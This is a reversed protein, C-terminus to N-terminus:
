KLFRAITLLVMLDEANPWIWEYVTKKWEWGNGLGAMPRLVFPKEWDLGLFQAFVNKPACDFFM